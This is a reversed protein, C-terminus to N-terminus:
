IRTLQILSVPKKPPTVTTSAINAPQQKPSSTWPDSVMGAAYGFVPQPYEPISRKWAPTFKKTPSTSTQTQNHTSSNSGGKSHDSSVSTISPPTNISSMSPSAAKASSSSTSAADPQFKPPSARSKILSGDSDETRDQNTSDESTGGEPLPLVRLSFPNINAV